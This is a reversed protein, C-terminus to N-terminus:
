QTDDRRCERSPEPMVPPLGRDATAKEGLWPWFHTVIQYTLPTLAATALSWVVRWSMVPDPWTAFTVAFAVVGAISRICWRHFEAEQNAPIRSEDCRGRSYFWRRVPYKAWQAVGSAVIMGLVISLFHAHALLAEFFQAVQTILEM